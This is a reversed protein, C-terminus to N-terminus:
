TLLQAISQLYQQYFGHAPVIALCGAQAPLHVTWSLEPAAVHSFKAWMGGVGLGRQKQGLNVNQM